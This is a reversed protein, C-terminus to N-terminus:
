IEEAFMREKCTFLKFSILFLVTAFCILYLLGNVNPLTKYLFINRYGNILSSLPNINILFKTIGTFSNADYIIPTLYFCILTLFNVIYKMDRMRIYLVALINAFGVYLIFECIFLIPYFLIYWSLGIGNFILALMLILSALLQDIMATLVNELPLILKPFYIKKVLSSNEVICITSSSLVTSFANWPLIAVFMFLTFDSINNGFLRGFVLSYVLLQLFPMLLTWLYGLFSGKYKSALSRKVLSFLMERYEFIEIINRIM